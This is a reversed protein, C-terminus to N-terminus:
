KILTDFKIQLPRLHPFKGLIYHFLAEACKRKALKQSEPCISGKIIEDDVKVMYQHEIGTDQYHVSKRYVLLFM